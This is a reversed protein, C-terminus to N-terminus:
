IYSLGTIDHSHIFLENVTNKVVCLMATFLWLVHVTATFWVFTPNDSEVMKEKNCSGRLLLQFWHRRHLMTDCSVVWMHHTTGERKMNSALVIHPQVLRKSHLKSLTMVAGSPCWIVTKKWPRVTSSKEVVVTLFLFSAFSIFLATTMLILMAQLTISPSLFFIVAIAGSQWVKLQAFAAEQM